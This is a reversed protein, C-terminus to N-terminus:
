YLNSGSKTAEIEKRISKNVLVFCFTDFSDFFIMTRKKKVAPAAGDASAVFIGLLSPEKMFRERECLESIQTTPTTATTPTTPLSPVFFLM